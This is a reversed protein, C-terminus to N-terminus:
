SNQVISCIRCLRGSMRHKRIFEKHGELAVSMRADRNQLYYKIKDILEPVTRFTELHRGPEFFSVIENSYNTIVFGGAALVHYIRQPISRLNQIQTLNLNIRASNYLDPLQHYQAGRLYRCGSDAFRPLIENWVADGYVDTKIGSQCLRRVCDIRQRSSLIQTYNVLFNELTKENFPNIGCKEVIENVFEAMAFRDYIDLHKEVAFEMVGKALELRKAASESSKAIADRFKGSASVETGRYTNM